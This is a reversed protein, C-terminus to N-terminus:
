QVSEISLYMDLHYDRWKYLLKLFIQQSLMIIQPNNYIYMKESHIIIFTYKNRDPSFIFIKSLM